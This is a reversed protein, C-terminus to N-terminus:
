NIGISVVGNGPAVTQVTIRHQDLVADRLLRALTQLGADTFGLPTNGVRCQNHTAGTTCLIRNSQTGQCSPESSFWVNIFGYNGYHNAYGPLYQLVSCVYLENTDARAARSAIPLFLASLCLAILLRKM